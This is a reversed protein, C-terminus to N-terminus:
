ESSENTEISPMGTRLEVPEAGILGGYCTGRTVVHYEMLHQAGPM